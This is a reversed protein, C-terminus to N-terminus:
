LPAPVQFACWPESFPHGRECGCERRWGGPEDVLMDPPTALVVPLGKAVEALWGEVVVGEGAGGVAGGAAAPAAAGGADCCLSFDSPIYPNPPPLALDASAEAEAWSRTLEEPLRLSAAEMGFWPETYVGLAGNATGDAAAGNAAGSAAGNVAGAPAAAAAGGPLPLKREKLQQMATKFETTMLDIRYSGSTASFAGLLQAVREPEWAEHLWDAALVHQPAVVGLTAALRTVYDCADEDELFRPATKFTGFPANECTGLTLQRIVIVIICPPPHALSPSM